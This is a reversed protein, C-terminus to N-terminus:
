EIDPKSMRGALREAGSMSRAEIGVRIRRDAGHGRNLVATLWRRVPQDFWRNAAIAVAVVLVVSAMGWLRPIHEYSGTRRLAISYSVYICWAYIPMQLVYIPYSIAGMWAFAREARPGPNNDAGIFIMTPFLVLTSVIDYISQLGGTPGCGLTLILIGVLLTPPLRPRWATMGRLRYLLVGASFSFAVRLLGAGISHWLTGGDMTAGLATGFGFWGFASSVGLAVAAVAVFAALRRTTLHRATVAFVLNAAIEDFLSWAPSNLPFLMSPSTPNPLFLLASIVDPAAAPLGTKGAVLRGAVFVIGIACALLYLPYLRVMRVMFFRRVTMGHELRVGYAHALVFGSLAFFFDVALYSEWFVGTPGTLNQWLFPPAHRIVIMIAAVGRLGDLTVFERQAPTARFAITM